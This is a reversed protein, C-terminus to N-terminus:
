TVLNKLVKMIREEYLALDKVAQVVQNFGASTFPIAGANQIQELRTIMTQYADRITQEDIAKNAFYDIEEAAEAQNILTELQADSLSSDVSVYTTASGDLRVVADIEVEASADLSKIRYLVLEKSLDFPNDFQRM